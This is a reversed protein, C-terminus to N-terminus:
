VCVVCVVVVAKVDKFIERGQKIPQSVKINEIQQPNKYSSKAHNCM